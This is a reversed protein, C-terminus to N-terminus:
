ELYLWEPHNLSYQGGYRNEIIELGGNHEKLKKRLHHMRQTFTPREIVKGWASKMLEEQTCRKPHQILTGLLHYELESLGIRDRQQGSRTITLWYGRGTTSPQTNTPLIFLDKNETAKQILFEWLITGPIRIPQLRDYRIIGESNLIYRLESPLHNWTEFPIEEDIQKDALSTVFLFFCHKIEQSSKDLAKQLRKWIRTLFTSLSVNIEEVLQQKDFEQLDAWNGNINAYEQKFNFAHFCFQQLLYPHTGAQQQLWHQENRSFIYTGGLKKFADAWSSGFNEPEQALFHLTDQWTLTQLTMTTFRALDASVDKFQDTITPRPLSEISLIVGFNSFEDILDVLIRIAGCFDLLAISREQPTQASSAINLTEFLQMSLSELREITDFTLFIRGERHQLCIDRVIRRLEKPELALQKLDQTYLPQLAALCQQIFFSLLREKSKIDENPALNVQIFYTEDLHIQTKLAKLEKRWTWEREPPGALYRILASKGIYPAGALILASQGGSIIKTIDTSRGSVHGTIIDSTDTVQFPNLLTSWTPNHPLSMM